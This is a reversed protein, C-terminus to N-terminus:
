VIAMLSDASRAAELYCSTVQQQSVELKASKATVADWDGDLYSGVFDLLARLRCPQGLLAEHAETPLEVHTLINELPMDLLASILSFLGVMFGHYPNCRANGALLECFRARLLALTLLEAPKGKAATAAASVCVWRRIANEGLIVLAQRLSTIDSGLCFAASNLFRLLKYCLAVDTKIIAEVAFFDFNPKCTAALLRVYNTYMSPIQRVTLLAPEAFSYGQFLTCGMARASAYEAHTEIKEAVFQIKNGFRHVLERCQDATLARFDIKIYDVFEVLPLTNANPVFDDLALSYGAAKLEACSQVLDHDAVITELVELVLNKTPLLEVLRQTLVEQTCNLFVHRGRTLEDIGLMLLDDLVRRSAGEPDSIRAFDERAARYLLEYGFTQQKSDLIPQRAIYRLM